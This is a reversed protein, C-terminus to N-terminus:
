EQRGRTLERSAMKYEDANPARYHWELKNEMFSVGKGKITNAIVIQPAHALTRDNTQEFISQHVQEFDHGDIETVSWGWSLWEGRLSRINLIKSVEGTAQWENKDVIVLLNDLSHHAALLACELTTGCQMEGDSMLVYIKYSKGSRKAALAMGVGIPLGHGMSGTSAEIGRVAKEVLGIYKSGEQCYTELDEEPIIRKRSLFYYASAAAWGKSFIVRDRDERLDENLNIQDFLVTLIDICSFNSGIHSTQARYIMELVKKRAENAIKAYDSARPTGASPTSLAFNDNTKVRRAAGESFSDYRELHEIM